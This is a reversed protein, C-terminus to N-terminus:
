GAGEHRRTRELYPRARDLQGQLAAVTDAMSDTAQARFTDLADMTAFVNDFAAQLKGIEITSSAAQQNIEAGQQQLQRSTAEILDSTTANLATIQQLVLKQRALAQSVIVATRL